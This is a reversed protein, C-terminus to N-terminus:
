YRGSADDLWSVGSAAVRSRLEANGEVATSLVQLHCLLPIQCGNCTSAAAERLVIRMQIFVLGASCGTSCFTGMRGDKQSARRDIKGIAQGARRDIAAACNMAWRMTCLGLSIDRHQPQWCHETKGKMKVPEGSLEASQKIPEGTVIRFM